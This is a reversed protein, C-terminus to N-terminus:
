RGSGSPKCATSSATSRPRSLARPTSLTSRSEQIALYCIHLSGHIEPYGFVPRALTQADFSLPGVGQSQGFEAPPPDGADLGVVVNRRGPFPLTRAKLGDQSGDLATLDSGHDSPVHGPKGAVAAPMLRM